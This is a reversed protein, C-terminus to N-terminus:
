LGCDNKIKEYINQTNTVYNRCQFYSHWCATAHFTFHFLLHRYWHVFSTFVPWHHISHVFRECLQHQLINPLIDTSWCYVFSLLLYCPPENRRLYCLKYNSLMSCNWWTISVVFANTFSCYATKM